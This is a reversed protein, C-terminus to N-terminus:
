LVIYVYKYILKKIIKLLKIIIRSLKQRFINKIESNNM